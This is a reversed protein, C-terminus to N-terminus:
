EFSGGGFLGSVAKSRDGVGKWKKKERRLESERLKERRENERAFFNIGSRKGANKKLKGDDGGAGGAGLAGPMASSVGGATTTGTASLTSSQSVLSNNTTAKRLLAPVKFTGSGASNAPAAFALRSTSLGSSGARKLTIRDVVATRSPRGNEKNSSASGDAAAEDDSGEGELPDTAPIITHDDDLLSSLSRKVDTISTPVRTTNGGRAKRLAPPLRATHDPELRNRKRGLNPNGAQAQADGSTAPQSDPIRDEQAEEQQGQSQSQSDEEEQEDAANPDFDLEDDSGRDEISKLFAANRPNEAIKGIREDAFLAKQMKQFQRRKMRKRAEGGDDSDSLDFAGNEGGGHRRRKRLMGTTIDHFLKDVQVAEEQREREAFLAALKGENIDNGEADDIMQKRLEAEAEEDSEDEGDAGGLGAYEDESEDAQEEVMERAKSKKADFKAQLRQKRRAAKAMLKFASASEEDQTAADPNPATVPLTMNVLPSGSAETGPLSADEPVAADGRRRLKGRKRIVLPSEMQEVAAQRPKSPTGDLVVTDVTGAPVEIFRSKLPSNDAFGNDQTPQLDSMQTADLQLLSDFGHAQSQSFHLQVGQTERNQTEGQSDFVLGDEDQSARQDATASFQSDPFADTSPMPTGSTFGAPQSSQSDDMTGAFIQTLGLGAPGSLPVPLGPIFSKTASRLVSTPVKPSSSHHASPSNFTRTKPKPTKAEVQKEEEDEDDSLVRVNKRARRARPHSPSGDGGEDDSLQKRTDKAKPTVADEPESEGAEDEAADEDFLPNGAEETEEDESGSFEIEGEEVPEGLDSGEFSDDDSDDWGVADDGEGNERREKRAQKADAREREMIEEAEQRARAVIDEVQEREREREEETQVVIGKAKLAELRRERELKAQARAREYLQAQMQVASMGAKVPKGRRANPPPSSHIQALQHLDHLSKSEQTKKAPMRAFIADIKSQKPNLIQLEPESDSDIAVKNVQVPDQPFKVRFQRKPAASKKKPSSKLDAATAVGKGKDLIKTQAVVEDLGPLEVIKETHADASAGETSNALPGPAEMVRKVASPPSSPPTGVEGAEADTQAGSVPTTPRSSSPPVNAAPASEEVGAPRFNFREFLSNKTIKKKTKAEHALQMSRAMRQTERNMEEIAKKSAKRAPRRASSEQTLKRGGEDDTIDSVDDDETEEAGAPTQEAMRKAREDRKKQEEAEKQLREQRKRAVLAQFRSSKTLDAPLEDETDSGATTTNKKQPSPSPSVFLGPSASRNRASAAEPTPSRQPRAVRRRRPLASVEDDDEEEADKQDLRPRSPIQISQTTKSPSKAPSAAKKTTGALMRAAIRGRPRIAEEEEDDEDDDDDDDNEPEVSGRTTTPVPAPKEANQLKAEDLRKFLAKTDIPGTEEDSSEDFAALEKQLKSRPSLTPSGSTSAADGTPSPSRTSAM